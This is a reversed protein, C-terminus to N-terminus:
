HAATSDPTGDSWKAVPIMFITVRDEPDNSSVIPSGAVDAGWIAADELPVYFMVHPHWHGAQDNLYGEKSMMYCMSGAEPASLEKKEFGAKIGELMQEKSKGSLILDTRRIVVPLFSRAAAANLCHPARMKPNWFEPNDIGVAWSRIVLCVFGNKGKVASEYGHRTLVLVEADGSISEPAASRALVIEANRDAILYQEIPAMSPYPGKADQARGARAASWAEGWAGSLAFGLVLGAIVCRGVIERKM